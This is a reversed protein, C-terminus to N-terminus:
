LEKILKKIEAIEEKSLDESQFLHQVLEVSSGKFVKELTNKLLNHKIEDPDIAASYIDTRGEQRYTLYGKKHLNRMMTLVSTYATKRNRLIDDVVDQVSAEGKEWVINLIELEVEGLVQKHKM